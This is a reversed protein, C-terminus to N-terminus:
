NVSEAIKLLEDTLMHGIIFYTYEDDHWVITLQPGNGMTSSTILGPHGNVQVYNVVTEENSLFTDFCDLLGQRYIILVSENEYEVCFSSQNRGRERRVFEDGLGRPERYEMIETPASAEEEHVFVVAIYREYWDVIADVLANRVADISLVAGFGVAMVVLAIMAVRKAYQWVPSPGQKARRVIRRKTRESLRLTPDASSYEELEKQGAYPAAAYLLADLMDVQPVKNM